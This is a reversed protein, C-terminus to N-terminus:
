AQVPVVIVKAAHVSFVVDMVEQLGLEARGCDPGKCPRWHSMTETPTQESLTIVGAHASLSQKVRYSVYSRLCQSHGQRRSGYGPTRYLMKREFHEAIAALPM